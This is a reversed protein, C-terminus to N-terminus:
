DPLEAAPLLHDAILVFPKYGLDFIQQPAKRDDLAELRFPFGLSNKLPFVPRCLLCLFLSSPPISQQSRDAADVAPGHHLKANKDKASPQSNSSLNGSPRHENHDIEATKNKI